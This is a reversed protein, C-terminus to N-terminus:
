AADSAQLRTQEVAALLPEPIVEELPAPLGPAGFPADPADPGAQQAQGRSSVFPLCLACALAAACVIRTFANM